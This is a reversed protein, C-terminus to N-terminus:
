GLPKQGLWLHFKVNESPKFFAFSFQYVLNKKKKKKIEMVRDRISEIVKFLYRGCFRQDPEFFLFFIKISQGLPFKRM